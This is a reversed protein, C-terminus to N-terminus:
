ECATRSMHRVIGAPRDAPLPRERAFWAPFPDSGPFRAFFEAEFQRLRAMVLGPPSRGDWRVFHLVQRFMLEEDSARPYVDRLIAFAAPRDGNVDRFRAAAEALNIEGRVLATALEEKIGVRHLVPENAAALAPPCALGAPAGAGHRNAIWGGAVATALVVALAPSTIPLAKM